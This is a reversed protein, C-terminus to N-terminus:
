SRIFALPKLTVTGGKQLIGIPQSNATRFDGGLWIGVVKSFDIRQGPENGIFMQQDFTVTKPDKVIDVVSSELGEQDLVNMQLTFTTDENIFDLEEVDVAFKQVDSLDVASLTSQNTYGLWRIEFGNSGVGRYTYKVTGDDVRIMSPQKTPPSLFIQRSEGLISGDTAKIEQQASQGAKAPIYQAYTFTDTTEVPVSFLSHSRSHPPLPPPPIPKNGGGEKEWERWWICVLGILVFYVVIIIIIVTICRSYTKKDVM